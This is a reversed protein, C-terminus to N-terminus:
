VRVGWAMKPDQPAPSGGMMHWMHWMTTIPGGPAVGLSKM